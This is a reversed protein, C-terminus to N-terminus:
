LGEGLRQRHEGVRLRRLREPLDVDRDGDQVPGEALVPRDLAQQLERAHRVDAGADGGRGEAHVLVQELRHQAVAADRDGAVHRQAQVVLELVREAGGDEDLGGAEARRHPDRLRVSTSHPTSPL